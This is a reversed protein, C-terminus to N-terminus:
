AKRLNNTKFESVQALKNIQKNEVTQPIKTLNQKAFM